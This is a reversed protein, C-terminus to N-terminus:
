RRSTARADRWSLVTIVTTAFVTLGLGIWLLSLLPFTKVVVPVTAVRRASALAHPSLDQGGADYRLAPVWVQVDRLWGRHIYPHLMYGPDGAYRAYRYDVIECLKRLPGAGDDTPARTDRYLAQGSGLTLAEGDRELGLQVRAIASFAPGAEHSVGGDHAYTERDLDIQLRYGDAFRQARGFDDPYVLEKQTYSDLVSAALAGVLALMIGLHALGVPAFYSRVARARLRPLLRGVWWLSSILLYAVTVLLADLWPFNDVTAHSTMGTGRYLSELPELLLASALAICGVGATIGWATVRSRIPLFARGGLLGVMVAVPTLWRNLSFNDVDWQAFARRLSALEEPAAFRSLTEFFPKLSDPRPLEAWASWYAQALHLAGVIGMLGFVIVALTVLLRTENSRVRSRTSRHRSCAWGIATAVLVAGAMAFLAYVSTAGIYRHSSALSESRTVAMSILVASASLLAFTPTTRALFGRQRYQRLGHLQAAAFAWVVFVSTQVPDWHWFQGFTFDEYAWWMGVALGATLILWGSRAFTSCVREFAGTGRVLAELAAGAPALIFAYAAFVLPPHLAMWVRLLHANLGRSSAQALDDPPTPLFPSWYAAGFGFAAALLLAGPGAWGDYRLLARASLGVLAALLLWTGEDGGWVNAIKLHVPLAPASYLWVYRYDFHDLLLHLSLALLAALWLALAADLATKRQWRSCAGYLALVAALLPASRELGSGGAMLLLSLPAAVLWWANHAFGRVAHDLGFSLARNVAGVVEASSAM